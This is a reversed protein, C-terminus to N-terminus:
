EWKIGRGDKIEYAFMVSEPDIGYTLATELLDAEYMLKFQKFSTGYHPPKILSKVLTLADETDKRTM